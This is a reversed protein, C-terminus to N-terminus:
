AAAAADEAAPGIVEEPDATDPVRIEGSILKPLLADRIQELTRTEAALSAVQEDLPALAADLERLDEEPPISVTARKLHERKIHGMTTAKDRAIAQFEPMHERIWESVFWPPFGDLPLVKFIHQNILSEPGDWRYIDLSGSWSFLIDHRRAINDDEVTIDSHPTNDSLGDNLEKIRLIPRGRRNAHKTFARGNVFRAVATLNAARWGDTVAGVVQHGFATSISAALLSNLGRNSDIKDDLAGLVSAIRDQEGVSPFPMEFAKVIRGSINQQASGSAAQQLRARHHLLGYFVFRHDAREPDILLAACAQNCAAQTNLIGLRGVTPSAYIAMLLTGRPLLKVATEELAADTIHEETDGIPRDRLEKTKV